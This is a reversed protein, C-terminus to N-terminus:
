DFLINFDEVDRANFCMMIQKETNRGESLRPLDTKSFFAAHSTEINHQFDMHHLECEVFIKYIGFPMPPTNHKKRDLVAIIRKPTIEAGAEEQAEKILNEKLSLDNDAWGGPLAWKGDIREKVMLIKNEKFVVARVDVKPTPYGNENAFLEQVKEKEMNTYDSIISFSIKRIEEFRELDYHNESYALGAQAIAQLKKAYSLWKPEFLSKDEPVNTDTMTEKM